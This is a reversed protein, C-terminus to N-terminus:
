ARTFAEGCPTHVAEFSDSAVRVKCGCGCTYLRLRSGSGAGRSKGGRTGIGAGCPKLRLAAGPGLISRLTIPQGETPVGLRVIFERLTPAFNALQYNTGAAKIRRLGLVECAAKWKPGHGADLGAFVHGLEHVVTGALQTPSEQGFASIEVFPMANEDNAKSWRNFFTVGRTGNPGSGYVLKINRLASQAEAELGEIVFAAIAQIYQEHTLQNTM